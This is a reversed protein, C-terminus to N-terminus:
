LLILGGRQKKYKRTGGARSVGMTKGYNGGKKSCGMQSYKKTKRGSHKRGSHKRGSHKRGSHKRGSHKRGSHKRGSHKRKGGGVFNNGGRAPDVNSGTNTFSAPYYSGGFAAIDKEAGPYSPDFGVSNNPYLSGGGVQTTSYTPQKVFNVPLPSVNAGDPYPAPSMSGGCGGKLRRGGYLKKSKKAGGMPRFMKIYLIKM